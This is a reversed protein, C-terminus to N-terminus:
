RTRSSVPEQTDDDSLAWEDKVSAILALWDSADETVELPRHCTPCRVQRGAFHDPVGIKQSCHHCRFKIM